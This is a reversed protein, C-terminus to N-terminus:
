YLENERYNDIIKSLYSALSQYFWEIENNYIHSSNAYLSILGVVMRNNNMIPISYHNINDYMNKCILHKKIDDEKAFITKRNIAALGCLGQGFTIKACSSVINQSLNTNATLRLEGSNKELVYIGGKMLLDLVPISVIIELIQQLRVKISLREFGFKMVAILAGQLMYDRELQEISLRQRDIIAQLNEERSDNGVIDM